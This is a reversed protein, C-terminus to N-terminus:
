AAATLRAATDAPPIAPGAHHRHLWYRHRRLGTASTWALTVQQDPQGYQGAATFGASAATLATIVTNPGPPRFPVQQWSAGGDASQEAFPASRGAKIEQGLAVV